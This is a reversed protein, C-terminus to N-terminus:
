AGDHCLPGAVQFRVDRAVTIAKDHWVKNEKKIQKKEMIKVAFDPPARGEKVAMKLRTHVVQLLKCTRGTSNCDYALIRVRAYAGEGLLAGYLFDKPEIRKQSASPQRAMGPTPTPTPAPTGSPQPSAMGLSAPTSGGAIGIMNHLPSLLM